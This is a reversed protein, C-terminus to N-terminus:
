ALGEMVLGEAIMHGAAQYEFGNMCENFLGGGLRAGQGQGPCLGLGPAPVFV